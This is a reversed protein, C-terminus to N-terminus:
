SFPAAAAAAAPLTWDHVAVVTPFPTTETHPTHTIEVTNREEHSTATLTGSSESDLTWLVQMCQPPVALGSAAHMGGEWCCRHCSGALLVTHAPLKAPLPLQGSTSGKHHQLAASTSAPSCPLCPWPTSSRLGKVSICQWSTQLEHRDPLDTLKSEGAEISESVLTLLLLMQSCGALRQRETSDVRLRHWIFQNNHWNFADHRCTSSQSHATHFPPVPMGATM